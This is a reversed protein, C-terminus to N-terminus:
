VAPHKLHWPTAQEYAHGIRCLMAESLKRGVFQASLPLGDASFGCPVSLTPSGSFNFPQTHIDNRVLASWTEVSDEDYPDSEKTRASNSMSPCVLCDVTDLMSHISASVETRVRTAAAFQAPALRQGAELVARMGPGYDAARSPFTSAHVALAEAYCLDFWANPVQSVDPMAVPVVKAGLRTLTALVEEMAAAVDADVNDTAYRRDFGIRLGAVGRALEARAAPVPDPLSTPDQPDAGAMAEFMIAADEVTRTMPGVHDMSPALAFVGYRSARGYTPKLGVCGNAASPYRISGGTDTGVSAFCLGAATAVGSGSSSVGSWRTADWPNVPVQFGPYYPGFAGECLALKGLMVAGAAELRAIVTADFNPVFDAFVKTGAMTRVGRTYCLDKAAIPVGHLPGRYRGARIEDDARRASALAQDTMVTVYSQLRVDVAAIRDLLQRTLDLSQLQREAILKAIQALSSYHLTDAVQSISAAPPSRECWAATVPLAAIGALRALLDRRTFMPEISSGSKLRNTEAITIAREIREPDQCADSRQCSVVDARISVSVPSTGLQSRGRWM